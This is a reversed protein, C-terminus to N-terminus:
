LCLLVPVVSNAVKWSTISPSSVSIGATGSSYELYRPTERQFIGESDTESGVVRFAAVQM